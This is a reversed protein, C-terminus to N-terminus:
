PLASSSAVTQDRRMFHGLALDVCSLLEAPSFPKELLMADFRKSASVLSGTIGAGTIMIAPTKIGNARLQDLLELGGIGPMDLDIILCSDDDPAAKRLFAEGSAYPRAIIGGCELLLQVSDRVAADDYIVHAMPKRMTPV